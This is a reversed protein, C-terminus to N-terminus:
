QGMIKKYQLMYEDYPLNKDQLRQIQQQQYQDRSVSDSGTPTFISKPPAADLNGLCQFKVIVQTNICEGFGNRTYCNQTQGGFAEADEYGWVRCKQMALTKAQDMSVVPQEFQTFDYSLDVTGDARSGGTAYFDKKTACGSIMLLGMCILIKKTMVSDM